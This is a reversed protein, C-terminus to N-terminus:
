GSSIMKILCIRFTLYSSIKSISSAQGALFVIAQIGIDNMFNGASYAVGEGGYDVNKDIRM